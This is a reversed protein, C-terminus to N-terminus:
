KKYSIARQFVTFDNLKFDEMQVNRYKDPHKRIDDALKECKNVYDVDSQDVKYSTLKKNNMVSFVITQDTKYMYYNDPNFYVPVYKYCEIDPFVIIGEPIFHKNWMVAEVQQQPLDVVIMIQKLMSQNIEKPFAKSEKKVIAKRKEWDAPLHKSCHILDLFFGIIIYTYSGTWLIFLAFFVIVGSKGFKSFICDLLIISTNFDSEPTVIVYYCFWCFGCFAIICPIGYDLIESKCRTYRYDKEM